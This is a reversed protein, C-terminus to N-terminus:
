AGAEHGRTWHEITPGLHFKMAHFLATRPSNVYIFMWHHPLASCRWHKGWDEQMGVFDYRRVNERYCNELNLSALINLPAYDGFEPRSGGKMLYLVDRYQLSLDFAVRRDGARLYHLRVFDRIGPTTALKAYFARGGDGFRQPTHEATADDMQFAERLDLPLAASGPLIRERELPGLRTLRETRHRLGSQITRPLSDVYTKWTGAITVFPLSGSARTAVLFGGASAADNLETLIMSGDPLQPLLLLDWRRREGAIHNWIAQYIAGRQERVLFDCRPVHANWIIALTRLRFGLLRQTDIVMPAIAVLAGNERVAIIHLTRDKGFCEWWLRIWDHTLFPHEVASTAALADWEDKLRLFGAFDSVAGVSLERTASRAAGPLGLRPAAVPEQRVDDM